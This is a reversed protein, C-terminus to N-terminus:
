LDGIEQKIFSLARRIIKSEDADARHNFREGQKEMLAILEDPDKWEIISGAEADDMDRNEAKWDIVHCVVYLITKEFPLNKDPLDGCLTGVFAVPKATAGFEERLGRHLTMLPTEEDEMSERMLIYVDKQGFKEGYHHCAIRGNEDFLVAGVSIHYPQKKSAQFFPKAATLQFCFILLLLNKM